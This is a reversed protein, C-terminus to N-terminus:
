SDPPEQTTRAKRTAHDRAVSFAEDVTAPSSGWGVFLTRLMAWRLTDVQLAPPQIRDRRRHSELGQLAAWLLHTRESVDGPAMAGINIAQELQDECLTLVPQLVAALERAKEESLVWTPATLFAEILRHRSPDLRAGESYIMLLVLIRTLAQTHPTLAKVSPATNAQELAETMAIGLASIAQEQVSVLLAEKSPFYRYLGGVSVDLRTALTAITLSDLGENAVISTAM